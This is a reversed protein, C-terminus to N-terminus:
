SRLLLGLSRAAEGDGREASVAAAVLVERLEALEDATRRVATRLRDVEPDLLAALRDGAGRLEDVLVAATAAHTRLQDPRLHLEPAPLPERAM